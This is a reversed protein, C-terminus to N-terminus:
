DGIKVQMRVTGGPHDRFYTLIQASDATCGANTFGNQETYGLIVSCKAIFTYRDPLLVFFTAVATGPGGDNRFIASMTCASGQCPGDWQSSRVQFAPEAPVTTSPSDPTELTSRPATSPTIEVTRVPSTPPTGALTDTAQARGAGAVSDGAAGSVPTNKSTPPSIWEKLPNFGTLTNVAVLIALVGSVVGIILSWKKFGSDDDPKKPEDGEGAM